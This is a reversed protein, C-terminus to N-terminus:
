RRHEPAVALPAATDRYGMGALMLRQRLWPLRDVAGMALGRLAQLALGQGAFARLLGHSSTITQNRDHARASAYAQLTAAAGPDGSAARIQAALAAADRLGLNFGQAGIPHITQAANGIVAVRADVLREAILLQLPWVQRRGVRLLRGQRYGLRPQLWRRFADDDLAMAAAREGNAVTCVVGCRQGSLPLVAVPGTDTFREFARGPHAASTEAACVMASQQYDHRLVPIDLQQRIASETGDAAVLLRTTIPQAGGEVAVIVEVQEDAQRFSLCRASRWCDISSAAAVRRELAAILLRAPVTAGLADLGLMSASLLVRGFEGARSVHVERIPTHESEAPLARWERLREVSARALAFHREDWIPATPAREPEADILLVRMGSGDLAIALSMGVLGGGVIVVDFQKETM